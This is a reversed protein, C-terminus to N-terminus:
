KGSNPGGSRVTPGTTSGERVSSTGASAIGVGTYGMYFSGALTGLLLLIVVFTIVSNRM